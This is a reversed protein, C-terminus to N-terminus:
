SKGLILETCGCGAGSAVEASARVLRKTCVTGVSLMRAGGRAVSCGAGYRAACDRDPRRAPLGSM